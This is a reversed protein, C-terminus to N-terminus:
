RSRNNAECENLVVKRSKQVGVILWTSRPRGLKRTGNVRIDLAMRM